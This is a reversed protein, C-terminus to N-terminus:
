RRCDTGCAAFAAGDLFGAFVATATATTRPGSVAPNSTVDFKIVRPVVADLCTFCQRLGLFGDALLRVRSM